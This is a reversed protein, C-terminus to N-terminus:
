VGLQKHKIPFFACGVVFHPSGAPRQQPSEASEPQFSAVCVHGEFHPLDL